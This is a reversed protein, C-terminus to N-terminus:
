KPYEWHKGTVVVVDCELVDVLLLVVDVVDVDVEKVDVDVVLLVFVVVDDVVDVVVEVPGLLETQGPARVFNWNKPTLSDPASNPLVAIGPVRLM